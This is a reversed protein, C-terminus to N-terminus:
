SRLGCPECCCDLPLHAHAARDRCRCRHFIQARLLTAQTLLHPAQEVFRPTLAGRVRLDRHRAGHTERDRHAAVLELGHLERAVRTEAHGYVLPATAARRRRGDDVTAGRLVHDGLGELDRAVRRLIGGRPERIGRLERRVDRIEIEIM